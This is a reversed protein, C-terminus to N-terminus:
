RLSSFLYDNDEQISHCGVCQAEPQKQKTNPDFAMFEWGNNDVGGTRRMVAVSQLPGKAGDAFAYLEKVLVTGVGADPTAQVYLERAVQKTEDPGPVLTSPHIKSWAQYGAPWGNTAVPEANVRSEGKRIRPCATLFISLSVILLFSRM